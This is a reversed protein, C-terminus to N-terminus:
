QGAACARPYSRFQADAKLALSPRGGYDTTWSGDRASDIYHALPAPLVYQIAGSESLHISNPTGGAYNNRLRTAQRTM